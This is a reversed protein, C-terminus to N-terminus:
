LFMLFDIDGLLRPTPRIRGWLQAAASSGASCVAEELFGPARYHAKASCCSGMDWTGHRGAQYSPNIDHIKWRHSRQCADTTLVM